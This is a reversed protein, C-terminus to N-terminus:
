LWSKSKRYPKEKAWQAIEALILRANEDKLRVLPDAFKEYLEM